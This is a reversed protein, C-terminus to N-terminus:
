RRFRPDAPFKARAQAAWQDASSTDGLNTFARVVVWYTSADANPMARILGALTERAEDDRGLSRLLTALGVRGEVSAPIAAIEAKFEREADATRGNRALCDALGAHLNRVVASAERQKLTIARQFNVIADDCRGRQQAIVGLLFPPMYRSPDVAASREAFARAEDRKGADLALEALTEYAGAPDRSEALAAHERARDPQRELAYIHALALHTEAKLPDLEIVKGFAAIAEGTRGLRELSKALAEWADLMRPQSRALSQLEQVAAAHDGRDASALARKLSEYSAIADKPDPLARGDAVLPASSGVYGLAKLRERVDAPVDAPKAAAAPAAARMLWDRLATATSAQTEALNHHEGRDSSLDFLEPRPARIYHYRGDVASALDSWGFHLRPYLTESYVVRDELRAGALSGAVSKGDLGSANLGALDLLTPAVDVLGLSGQVRAAHPVGAPLRLIWPVHLAERYLFIGHESEGHDNLGEGHDSVIAVIARDLLRRTRLRDLLRSVLEDAYAIEGDYANRMQHSAPPSYPAHPEYLHLFAFVRDTTLSDIWAGLADITRGGDRQAASLSEENGTLDVADDFVDFGASLGTQHRLVFSSVAAGTAYGAAKFRAALTDRTALTFGINDHIGHRTPLQGTLLSAHSPLTLPVHSYVDEFVVANRGMADLGPTSGDPYGYLALHDARLTDISILIVPAGMFPGTSATSRGAGCGAVSVALALVLARVRAM